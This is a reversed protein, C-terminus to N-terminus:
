IARWRAVASGTESLLSVQGAPAPLAEEVLALDQEVAKVQGIYLSLLLCVDGTGGQSPAELMPILSMVVVDAYGQCAGKEVYAVRQVCWKLFTDRIDEMSRGGEPGQMGGAVDNFLHGCNLSFADGSLSVPM